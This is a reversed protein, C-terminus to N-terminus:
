PLEKELADLAARDKAIIKRACSVCYHDWSRENRIKLRADGMNIRHLKSAQCNHSKVAHDVMATTLLSKTGM